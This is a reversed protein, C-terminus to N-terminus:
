AIQKRRTIGILGLLGSGFFWIAAPIPVINIIAIGGCPDNDILRDQCIINQSIASGDSLTGSIIARYTNFGSSSSILQPTTLVLDGYFKFSDYDIPGAGDFSSINYQFGASFMGGRIDITVDERYADISIDGLFIGGTINYIGQITGISGITGGSINLSSSSESFISGITGGSIEATTAAMYIQGQVIGGSINLSNNLDSIVNGQVLGDTINLSSGNLYIANSGYPGPNIGLIKADAELTVTTGNSIALGDNITYDISYTGGDALSVARVAGSTIFLSSFLVFYISSLRCSKKM